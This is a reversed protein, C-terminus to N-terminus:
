TPTSVSVIGSEEVQARRRLERQWDDDTIPRTRADNLAAERTDDYRRTLACDGGGDNYMAPIHNARLLAIGRNLRQRWERLTERRKENLGRQRMERGVENWVSRMRELETAIEEETAYLTATRDIVVEGILDIRYNREWQERAPWERPVHEVAHTGDRQRRPPGNSERVAIARSFAESAPEDIFSHDAMEHPQSPPPGNPSPGNPDGGPFFWWSPGAGQKGPESRQDDDIDLDAKAREVSRWSIDRGEAEAEIDSRRRPGNALMEVLMEKAGERKPSQRERAGGQLVDEAHLHPADEGWVIAATSIPPTTDITASVVKFRRTPAPVSLNHKGHVLVRASDDEPHEPDRAVLIASRVAGTLGVSGGVRQILDGQTQKNLHAVALVAVGTKDALRFLPALSRRISHDRHADTNDSIAAMIPDVMIVKAGTRIVENALLDADDPLTLSDELGDEEVTLLKVLTMDAGAARLRPVLTNAASDEGSWVLVPSPTEYLDGRLTGRTVQALKHLAVTTKALGPQGVLLTVAGLPILPDDLFSVAEPEIDDAVRSEVHRGRDRQVRPRPAVHPQGLAAQEQSTLPQGRLQKFVARERPSLPLQAPQAM